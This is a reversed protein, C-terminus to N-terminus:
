MKWTKNKKSPVTSVMKRQYGSHIISLQHDLDRGLRAWRNVEETLRYIEVDAKSGEHRLDITRFFTFSKVIM